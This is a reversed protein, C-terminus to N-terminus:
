VYEEGRIIGDLREKVLDANPEDWISKLNDIIKEWDINKNM